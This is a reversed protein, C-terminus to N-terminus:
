HEDGPEKLARIATASPPPSLHRWADYDSINWGQECDPHVDGDEDDLWIIHQEWWSRGDTHRVKIAAIFHSDTPATEIPMWGDAEPRTAPPGLYLAVDTPTGPKMAWISATGGRRALADLWGQTTWAAPEESRTAPPEPAAALIADWLPQMEVVGAVAKVHRVAWIAQGIFRDCKIPVIKWGEPVAVAPAPPSAYLPRVGNYRCKSAWGRAAEEDDFEEWSPKGTDEWDNSRWAQWLVPVAACYPCPEAVRGVEYLHRTGLCHPCEAAEVRRDMALIAARLHKAARTMAASAEIKAAKSSATVIVDALAELEDAVREIEDASPEIATTM